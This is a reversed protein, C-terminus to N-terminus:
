FSTRSYPAPGGDALAAWARVAEPSGSVRGADALTSVRTGGLYLAGLTGVDLRVEGAAPDASEQAVQANGDRVSVRWAGHAHGLSDTIGLLVSGDGFWPRGELAVQVDLVRLWIHDEVGTVSRCQPDALAWTIPADVQTTAKVLECLDLDGLFTWLALEAQPTLGVLDQVTATYPREWGSHRYLVYGDPQEDADLHVAARLKADPAQEEPDWEGRSLADYGAHRTVSGRQQAHWADFLHRQTPWLDAPEVLEFRGYPQYGSVAFRASVDMDVRARWTAAGFGFRGYISGESVTLAALPRGAAVADDLDATIMRRLLGQRRHAPSVTVESIQHLPLLAAGTNLEGPWHAFTAVPTPGAGYATDPLWAGRLVAQDARVTRLWRERTEDKPRAQQFGRNVASHWGALRALNEAADDHLDLIELDLNVGVM